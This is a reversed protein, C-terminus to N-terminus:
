QSIAWLFYTLAPFIFSLLLVITTWFQLRSRKRSVHNTGFERELFEEYDEDEDGDESYGQSDDYRNDDDDFDENDSNWRNSRRSTM